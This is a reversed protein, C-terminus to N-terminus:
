AVFAAEAVSFFRLDFLDMVARIQEDTCSSPFVPGEHGEPPPITYGPIIEGLQRELEDRSLESMYELGGGYSFRYLDRARFAAINRRLADREADEVCRFVGKIEGGREALYECDEVRRELVVHLRLRGEAASRLLDAQSAFGREECLDAATSFDNM